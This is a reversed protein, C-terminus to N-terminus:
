LRRACGVPTQGGVRVYLDTSPPCDERTRALAAVRYEPAHRGTGDCATEKVVGPREGYVCDGAVTLPGGGGGPDGPHPARLNRMCAYGEPLSDRESTGATVATIHLVFDTADPCRPGSARPGNYRALVVASAPAGRCDTEEFGAPGRGACSGRDLFPGRHTSRVPAATAQHTVAEPRARGPLQCAALTGTGYVAAVALLVAHLSRHRM